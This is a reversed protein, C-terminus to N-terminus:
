LDPNKLHDPLENVSEIIADPKAMKLKKINEIGLKVGSRVAITYVKANRGARVDLQTDGVMVTKQKDTKLRKIIYSIMDPHPKPRLNSHGYGYGVVFDFYKHLGLRKLLLKTQAEGKATAIALKCGIKKLISLTRKVGPLIKVGVHCTKAYRKRYDKVLKVALHSDKKPIITGFIDILPHGMLTYVKDDKLKEYGNLGLSYNINEKINRRADILTGDLDFIVLDFVRKM